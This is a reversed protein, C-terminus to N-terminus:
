PASARAERDKEFAERQALVISRVRTVEPSTGLLGHAAESQMMLRREPPGSKGAFRGTRFAAVRDKLDGKLLEPQEEHVCLLSVLDGFAMWDAVTDDDIPTDPVSGIARGDVFHEAMADFAAIKQYSDYGKRESCVAKALPWSWKDLALAASRGGQLFEEARKVTAKLLDEDAVWFPWSPKSVVAPAPKAADRESLEKELEEQAVAAAVVSALSGSAAPTLVYVKEFLAHFIGRAEDSVVLGRYIEARAESLREVLADDAAGATGYDSEIADFGAKWEDFKKQDFGLRSASLYRKVLEKDERGGDQFLTVAQRQLRESELQHFRDLTSQLVNLDRQVYVLHNEFDDVTVPGRGELEALEQDIPVVQESIETKVVKDKTTSCGVFAVGCLAVLLGVNRLRLM